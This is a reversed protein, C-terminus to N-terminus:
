VYLVRRPNFKFGGRNAHRAASLPATQPLLSGLLLGRVFQTWLTKPNIPVKIKFIKMKKEREKKKVNKAIANYKLSRSRTVHNDVLITLEYLAYFHLCKRAVIGESRGDNCVRMQIRRLDVVIRKFYAFPSFFVMICKTILHDIILYGGVSEFRM